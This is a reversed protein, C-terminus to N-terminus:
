KREQAAIREQLKELALSFSYHALTGESYKNKQQQLFDEVNSSADGLADIVLEDTYRSAAKLLVEEEAEVSSCRQFIEFAKERLCYMESLIYKRALMLLHQKDEETTVLRRLANLADFSNQHAYSFLLPLTAPTAVRGLALFAAEQLEPVYLAELAKGEVFTDHPVGYLHLLLLAIKKILMSPEQLLAHNVELFHSRDTKALHVLQRRAEEVNTEILQQFYAGTAQPEFM